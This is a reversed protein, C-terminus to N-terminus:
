YTKSSVIINLPKNFKHTNQTNKLDQNDNQMNNKLSLM